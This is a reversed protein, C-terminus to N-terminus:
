FRAAFAAQVSTDINTQSPIVAAGAQRITVRYAIEDTDFKFDRSIAVNLGNKEAVVYKAFDGYLIDGNSNLNAMQQMVNVKKGMLMTGDANVMSGSQPSFAPVVSTATSCVDMMSAWAKTSMFWEPNYQPMVGAMLNIVSAKTITAAVTCAARYGNAAATLIGEFGDTAAVGNLVRNDFEWGSKEKINNILWAGFAPADEILEETAYELWSWTVLSLTKQYLVPKTGTKAGGDPTIPYMRPPNTASNGTNLYIPLKISNSKIPLKMCKPYIVSGPITAGFIQSTIEPTLLYGGSDNVGESMGSAKQTVRIAEPERTISQAWQGLSKIVVKEDAAEVKVEKKEVKDDSMIDVEKKIAQEQEASATKEDYDIAFSKEKLEKASKEDVNEVISGATYNEYDKVFKIKM